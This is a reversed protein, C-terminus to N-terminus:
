RQHLGLRASPVDKCEGSGVIKGFHLPPRVIKVTQFQQSMYSVEPVMRIKLDSPRKERHLAAVFNKISNLLPDIELLAGSM